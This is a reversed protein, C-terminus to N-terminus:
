YEKSPRPMLKEPERLFDLVNDATTVYSPSEALGGPFKGYLADIAVQCAVQGMQFPVTNLTGYANGAAIEELFETNGDNAVIIIDDRNLSKMAILAGMAEMDNAAYIMNIEPRAQLMDMAATNGGDTNWSGNLSSVIEYDPHSAIGEKFGGTREENHYGPLGEIIGIILKKDAFTKALAEGQAKNGARQTYGVAGHLPATFDTSDSNLNIVVIGAEVAQKVLPGAADDDHANLLIVDVKQSIADQLMGIQGHIDSGSQPALTVVNAGMEAATAKIGEGVAMIYPFETGAPMFAITPVKGQEYAINDFSAQNGSSGVPTKYEIMKQYTFEGAAPAAESAAPAAESSAPAEPAASSPPTTSSGGSCATMVLLLSVVLIALVKKM